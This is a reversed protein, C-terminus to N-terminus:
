LNLPTRNLFHMLSAPRGQDAKTQWLRGQNSSALTLNRPGKTRKDYQGIIRTGKDNQGQTRKDKPGKTVKDKQKHTRIDM